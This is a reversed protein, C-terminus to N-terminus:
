KLRKIRPSKKFLPGYLDDRIDILLENKNVKTVFEVPADEIIALPQRERGEGMELVAATALSDAVDVRSMKLIRGFIDKTGRYDKVGKFGAYGLAVGVVGARLPFLRSDTILIGLNQVKYHSMLAKQLKSAAVFSNKPLLVLKGDANSEDIGASAMVMGDKITLWVLKTKLAYESEAKILREKDKKSVAESTRGESLAVIKSTVVLISGDNLAPVYEIIFRELSENEIFIRTKIASVIM